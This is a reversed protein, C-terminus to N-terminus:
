QATAPPENTPDNSTDDYNQENNTEPKVHKTKIYRDLFDAFRKSPLSITSVNVGYIDNATILLYDPQYLFIAPVENAVTKQFQEYLEKRRQEDTTQRAEELVKDIEANEYLALNLGPDKVQSSHWFGFPDPDAGSIEGFLLTEYERPRIRTTQIDAPELIELQATVGISQWDEKLIEAAKILGPWNTTTITLTLKEGDNKEETDNKEVKTRIGDNNLDKWGAEDLLKKAEERNFEFQEVDNTHAFLGEPIPSYQITGKERAVDRLIRQKDTAFSLAKRVREDQFTTKKLPNFFVAFYQPIHLEHVTSKKRTVLDLSQPSIGAIADVNKKNFAEILEEESTFYTFVVHEINPAKGYYSESAELEFQSIKGNKEKKFKVFRYPGSGIPKTNQQALKINQADIIEWVHKPLIGFTLNHQFPTYSTKLKLTLTHDDTKEATVGQWNTRLPSEYTPDQIINITFLIDDITLPRGDHWTVNDRITISYLKGEERVEINTALDNQLTGQPDYELISSFLLETLDLDAENTQALIPNVLRPQGIVGESYTGGFIPVPIRQNYYLKQVGITIIAGLCIIGIAIMAQRDRRSLTRPIDKWEKGKPVWRKWHVHHTKPFRFKAFRASWTEKNLFSKLSTQQKEENTERENNM